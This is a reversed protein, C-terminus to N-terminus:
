KKRYLEVNRFSQGDSNFGLVINRRSLGDSALTGRSILRIIGNTRLVLQFTSDNIRQFQATGGPGSQWETEAGDYRWLHSSHVERGDGFIVDTQLRYGVSDATIRVTFARYPVPIGPGM